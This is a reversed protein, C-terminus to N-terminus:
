GLGILAFAAFLTVGGASVGLRTGLRGAGLVLQDAAVTLLALGLLALAVLLPMRAREGLAATLHDPRRHAVVRGNRRGRGRRGRHGVFLRDARPGASGPWRRWQLDRARVVPLVPRLRADRHGPLRV